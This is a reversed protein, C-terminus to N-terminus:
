SSLDCLAMDRRPRPRIPMANVNVCPNLALIGGRMGSIIIVRKVGRVGITDVGDAGHALCAVLVQMLMSMLRSCFEPCGLPNMFANLVNESTKEFRNGNHVSATAVSPRSAGPM